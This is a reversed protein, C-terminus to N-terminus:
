PETHRVLLYGNLSGSMPQGPVQEIWVYTFYLAQNENLSVLRYADPLVTADSCNAILQHLYETADWRLPAAAPGCSIEAAGEEGQAVYTYFCYAEDWGQVPIPTGEPVSLSLTRTAGEPLPSAATLLFDWNDQPVTHLQVALDPAWQVTDAHDYLYDLCSRVTQQDDATMEVAHLHIANGDWLAYRRLVTELRHSQWYRPIDVINLPTCSGLLVLAAAVGFFYRPHQRVAALILGSIALTLCLLGAYRATTLGYAQLRIIIGVLQVVLIPLQGAWGWRLFAQVWPASDQRLTLWFFLYGALALSAYWNMTGSPMHWTILIKGVYGYLIAILLLYLPLCVRGWLLSFFKTLPRREGCAPLLACVLWPFLLFWPFYGLSGWIWDMARVVAPSSEGLLLQQVALFCVLVGLSVSVCIVGSFLFIRTLDPFLSDANDPGYLQWVALLGGALLIGYYLFDPWSRLDTPALHLAIYQMGGSILGALIAIGWSLKKPHPLNHRECFLCVNLGFVMAWGAAYQGATCLAHAGPVSLLPDLRLLLYLLLAAAYVPAFRCLGAQMRCFLSQHRPMSKECDM